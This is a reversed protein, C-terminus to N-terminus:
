STVLTLAIKRNEVDIKIIKVTVEEGVKVVDKPEDVKGEGKEITEKAKSKIEELETDPTEPMIKLTILATGM